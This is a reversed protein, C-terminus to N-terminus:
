GITPTSPGAPARTETASATAPAAAQRQKPRRAKSAKRRQAVPAPARPTKAGDGAVRGHSKRKKGEARRLAKHAKRLKKRQVLMNKLAARAAKEVKRAATGVDTKELAALAATLARSWKHINGQVKQARATAKEIAKAARRLVGGRPEAATRKKAKRDMVKPSKKKAM